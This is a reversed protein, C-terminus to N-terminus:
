LAELFQDLAEGMAKIQDEAMLIVLHCAFDRNELRFNVEVLLANRWPLEGARLLEAVSVHDAM